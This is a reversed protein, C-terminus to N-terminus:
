CKTEGYSEKVKEVQERIANRLSDPELLLAASGWGLVWRVIEFEGGARFTMVTNGDPLDEFRQTPHWIREKVCPVQDKRFQVKVTIPKGGIVGFSQDRLREFSFKPVVTFREQSAEIHTIREVALTIV